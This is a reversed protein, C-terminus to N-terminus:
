DIQTGTQQQKKKVKNVNFNYLRQVSFIMIENTKGNLHMRIHHIEDVLHFNSGNGAILQQDLYM